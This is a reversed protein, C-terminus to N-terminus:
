NTRRRLVVIAVGAAVLAAGGGLLPWVGIGGTTPLDAIQANGIAVKFYGTGDNVKSDVATGNSGIVTVDGAVAGDASSKWTARGGANIVLTYTLNDSQYGAPVHTEQVTYTGPTLNKFSVYGDEGTTATQASSGDPTLTFEAGQLNSGDSEDTGVYKHIRFEYTVYTNTFEVTHSVSQMQKQYQDSTTVASNPADVPSDDLKVSSLKWGATDAESVTYTHGTPGAAVIVDSTWSHDVDLTLTQYDKGDQKVTVELSNPATGGAWTKKVTLKSTPVDMTPRDFYKSGPTETTENNVTTLETYTVANGSNTNSYAKITNDGAKYINRSTDSGGNSLKAADDYAQQTLKVPFSVTYTYGDKLQYNSGLNWTINKGNVTAEPLTTKGDSRPSSADVQNGDADTITYTLGSADIDGSNTNAVVVDGSLTDTMAVNKYSHANTISQIINAFANNLATQDSAAYYHDSANSGAATVLDQMRTVNGFVGVGYFNTNSKDLQSAAENYCTTVNPEEEYGTGSPNSQGVYFTPNGDSVFIVYKTAGDRTAIANAKILADEWNTGGEATTGNIANQFVSLNTTGTIATRATDAFTVLSLQVSADEGTASGNNSLLQAALGNSGGIANQAIQLRTVSTYREGNGWTNYSYYNSGAQFYLDSIDTTDGDQIPTYIYRGWRSDYTRTYLQYYVSGYYGYSGTDSQNPHDAMSGSTDFVVVVDVKNSTTSSSASGRVSLSLTATGSAKQEETQTLTKSIAPGSTPDTSGSVASDGGEAAVPSPLIVLSMVMFFSAVIALAKREWPIRSANNTATNRM